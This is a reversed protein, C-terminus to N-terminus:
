RDRDRRWPSLPPRERRGERDRGADLEIMGDVIEFDHALAVATIRGMEIAALVPELDLFQAAIAMRKRM